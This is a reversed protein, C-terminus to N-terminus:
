CPGLGVHQKFEAEREGGGGEVKDNFNDDNEVLPM